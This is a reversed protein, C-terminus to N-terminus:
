SWSLWCYIRHFGKRSGIRTTLTESSGSISRWTKDRSPGSREKYSLAQTTGKLRTYVTFVTGNTLIARSLGVEVFCCPSCVYLDSLLCSVKDIIRFSEGGDRILLLDNRRDRKKGEPVSVQWVHTSILPVVNEDKGTSFYELIRSAVVWPFLFRRFMTKFIKSVVVKARTISRTRSDIVYIEEFDLFFDPDDARRNRYHKTLFVQLAFCFVVYTRFIFFVWLPGRVLTLCYHM